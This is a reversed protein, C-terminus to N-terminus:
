LHGRAAHDGSGHLGGPGRLSGAGVRHALVFAHAATGATPVGHRRGAELNSTSAFGALHAARASAVAALEHTRRSGMEIVPRAEAAGVMRAAASAVASDHNLVSLMLTELLVCEAFTGTVSLVPTDPFFAEGEADGDIDGTFRYGALWDATEPDIVRHACLDDLEDPGFRFREIADLLRGTGAM